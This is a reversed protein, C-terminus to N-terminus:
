QHAFRWCRVFQKFSHSFISVFDSIMLRDFNVLKCIELRELNEVAVNKADGGVNIKLKDVIEEMSKTFKPAQGKGMNWVFLVRACNEAFNVLYEAM